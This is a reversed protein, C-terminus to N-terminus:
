IYFVYKYFFVTIFWMTYVFRKKLHQNKDIFFYSLKDSFSLIASMRFVLTKRFINSGQFLLYVMSSECFLLGPNRENVHFHHLWHVMLDNRVFKGVDPAVMFVDCSWKVRKMTRHKWCKVFSYFSHIIRWKDDKIKMKLHCCKCIKEM